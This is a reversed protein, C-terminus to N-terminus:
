PIEAPLTISVYKSTKAGKMVHDLADFLTAPLNDTHYNQFTVERKPIREAIKERMESFKEKKMKEEARSKEEKDKEVKEGRYVEVLLAM